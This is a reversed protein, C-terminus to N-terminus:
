RAYPTDDRDLSPAGAPWVMFHGSGSSPEHGATAPCAHCLLVNAPGFILSRRDHRIFGSYSVAAHIIWALGRLRQRLAILRQRLAPVRQWPASLWEELAPFGQGLGSLGQGLASFRQWAAAVGQGLPAVRQGLAALGQGL